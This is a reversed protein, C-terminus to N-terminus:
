NEFKSQLSRLLWAASIIFPMTSLVTKYNRGLVGSLRIFFVLLGPLALGAIAGSRRPNKQFLLALLILLGVFPLLILPHSFNSEESTPQSFITYVAEYVFAPQQGGWEVYCIFFSAFTCLLAM